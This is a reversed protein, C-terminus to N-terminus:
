AHVRAGLRLGAEPRQQAVSEQLTDKNPDAKCTKPEAEELTREEDAGFLLRGLLGFLGFFTLAPSVVIFISNESKSPPPAKPAFLFITWFATKRPFRWSLLFKFTCIKNGLFKTRM